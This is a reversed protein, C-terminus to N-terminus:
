SITGVVRAIEAVHEEIVSLPLDCEDFQGTRNTLKAALGRKPVLRLEDPDVAASHESFHESLQELYDSFIITRSVMKPDEAFVCDRLWIWGTLIGGEAEREQADTLGVPDINLDVILCDIPVEARREWYYQADYVALVKLVDHGKDELLGVLEESASGRDELLLIRM